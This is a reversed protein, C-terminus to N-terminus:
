FPSKPSILELIMKLAKSFINAKKQIREKTITEPVKALPLHGTVLAVRLTDDVMMMLSEKAGVAETIFETHGIFHFDESNLNNKNLPATVLGQIKGDKLDNVAAKLAEFAMKAAEVTEVGPIVEPSEEMVNIVNIKRHQIEDLSRIQSFNFDEMSM